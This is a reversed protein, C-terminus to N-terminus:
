SAIAVWFTVMVMVPALSAGVCRTLDATIDVPFMVSPVVRVSLPEIVKVSTSREGITGHGGFGGGGDGCQLLITDRWQHQARRLLQGM